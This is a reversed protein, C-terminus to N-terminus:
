PNVHLFLATSGVQTADGDAATSSVRHSTAINVDSHSTRDFLILYDTNPNVTFFQVPTQTPNASVSTVLFWGLTTNNNLSTTSTFVPGPATIPAGFQFVGIKSSNYGNFFGVAYGGVLNTIGNSFRGNFASSVQVGRNTLTFGFYPLCNVDIVIGDFRGGDDDDATWVGDENDDFFYVFQSLTTANALTTSTVVESSDLDRPLVPVNSSSTAFGSQRPFQLLNWGSWVCETGVRFLNIDFVTDGAATGNSNQRRNNPNFLLAGGGGIKNLLSSAAMRDGTPLEVVIIVPWGVANLRSLGTFASIPATMHLRYLGSDDSIVATSAIPEDGVGNSLLSRATGDSSRLVDWFTSVQGGSVSTNTPSTGQSPTTTGKGTFTVNALNNANVTLQTISTQGNDDKYNRIYMDGQEDYLYVFEELGLIVNTMANLSSTDSIVFSLNNMTGRIAKVRPAAIFGFIKTGASVNATGDETIHGAIEMVAPFQGDANPQPVAQSAFSVNMPAVANGSTGALPTAASAGNYTILVSSSESITSAPLNLSITNGSPAFSPNAAALAAATVGQVTFDAIAVSAPDVDQTFFLDVREAFGDANTDVLFASYIIGGNVDFQLPVYPATRDVAVIGTTVPALQNDFGDEVGNDSQVTLSVGPEFGGSQNDTFQVINSDTGFIGDFDGASFRETPSSGFRFKTPDVPASFVQESFIIQAVNNDTQDGPQGDQEAAKQMGASLNDGTLFNVNAIVPTAQDISANANTLDTAFANGAADRINATAAVVSLNTASADGTGPIAVGTSMDDWMITAPNFAYVLTNNMELTDITGNGNVDTSTITAGTLSIANNAPTANAVTMDTGLEGTVPDIMNFPHVTVGGNRASTVGSTTASAALLPEDFVLEIGDQQGDHNTDTFAPSGFGSALAPIIADTANATSTGTFTQSFIDMPPTGVAADLDVSYQGNTAGDRGNAAVSDAGSSNVNLLVASANSPDAAVATVSLDSASGALLVNNYFATNGLNGSALPNNWVVRLSMATGGFAPVTQVWQASSLALAQLQTIQQAINTAQNHSIDYIDNQPAPVASYSPRIFNGLVYDGAAVDFSITTRDAGVFAPNSLGAPAAENGTFTSTTNFQLDASTINALVTQNTDNGAAGNNLSESFVLFGKDGASNLFANALAPSVNDKTCIQDLAENNPDFVAVLFGTGTTTNVQFQIGIVAANALASAFNVTGLDVMISNGAGNSYAVPGGVTNVGFPGFVVNGASDILNFGVQIAETDVLAGGGGGAPVGLTVTTKTGAFEQTGVKPQTVTLQAQAQGAAFLTALSALIATTFRRM